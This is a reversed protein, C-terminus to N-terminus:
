KAGFYHIKECSVSSVSSPVSARLNLLFYPAPTVIESTEPFTLLGANTLGGPGHIANATYELRLLFEFRRRSVYKCTSQLPCFDNKLYCGTPWLRVYIQLFSPSTVFFGIHQSNNTTVPQNYRVVICSCIQLDTPGEVTNM